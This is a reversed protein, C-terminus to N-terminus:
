ELANLKELLLPNRAVQQVTAAAGKQNLHSPDAFFSDQNVWQSLLDIM